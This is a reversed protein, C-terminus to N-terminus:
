RNLLNELNLIYNRHLTIKNYTKKSFNINEISPSLNRNKILVLLEEIKHVLEIENKVWHICESPHTWIVEAGVSLAEIVTVSFGDHDTMRLFIPAIVIEKDMEESKLWGLLKINSPYDESVNKLGAVRFEIFPFKQAALKIKEWGYFEMRSEAVYTFITMEPYFDVPTLERGYKFPVIYIPLNISKVEEQQWPSDVFNSAYDIYKRYISGNKFREMALLADTGMWQLILKKKWRLVWDLTGSKDTVGNFSIVLSSFPLTFFFLIKDTFSYYTDFALYTKSKDIEGLDNAMKKAFLPLGVFIIIKRGM